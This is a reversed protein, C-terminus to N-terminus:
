LGSAKISIPYSRSNFELICDKYCYSGIKTAYKHSVLDVFTLHCVKFNSLATELSSNKSMMSLLEQQTNTSEKRTDKLMTDAAERMMWLASQALGQKGDISYLLIDFNKDCCSDDLNMARNVLERLMNRCDMEDFLEFYIRYIRKVFDLVQHHGFISLSKALIVVNDLVAKEVSLSQMNELADRENSIISGSRQEHYIKLVENVSDATIFGHTVGREFAQCARNYFSPVLLIDLLIYIDFLHDDGLLYETELEIM